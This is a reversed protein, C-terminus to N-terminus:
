EGDDALDVEWESEEADTLSSLDLSMQFMNLFEVVFVVSLLSLFIM